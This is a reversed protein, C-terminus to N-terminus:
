RRALLYPGVLAVSSLVTSAVVFVAVLLLTTGSGPVAQHWEVALVTSLCVCGAFAIAAAGLAIRSRLGILGLGATVIFLALAAERKWELHHPTQAWPAAPLTNEPIAYLPLVFFPLSVLFLLAARRPAREAALRRALDEPDGYREIAERESGLKSAAERLHTETEVMFRREVLFRRRFARRLEALYADIV